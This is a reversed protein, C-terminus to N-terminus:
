NSRGRVSKAGNEALLIVLPVLFGIVLSLWPAFPQETSGLQQLALNILLLVSGSLVAILPITLLKPRDSRKIWLRGAGSIGGWLSGALVVSQWGVSVFSFLWFAALVFAIVGALIAVPWSLIETRQRVISLFSDSFPVYFFGVFAGAIFAGAVYFLALTGSMDSSLRNVLIAALGLGIAGGVVAFIISRRAEQRGVEARKEQEMEALAEAEQSAEIFEEQQPSLGWAEYEEIRSEAQALQSGRFLYDPQRENDEWEQVARTLRGAFSLRERDEDIWSRLRPWRRILAEHAVQVQDGDITILRAAVLEEVVENVAAEDADIRLLEERSAIRRTDKADEHLETLSLFVHKVIPLQDERLRQLTDDATKAIAGEVGGAARYGGLTMVTGRRLEWTELLAHSLLPLQGPEGGADELIQEVLGEVLQWAGRKAPEAIIRVLNEQRMPGILEQHQSVLTRLGEYQATEGYFDARMGILITIEGEEAAAALLNDIFARRETEDRCLTFIEEFQDIVLYLHTANTQGLMRNAALYLIRPNSALEARLEDAATLASDDETLVNALRQLPRSTPTMIRILWNQQRLRPVVGARLLSSKGSGSAGIVVLFPTHQLRAVIDDSLEERGFFNDADAETFYALGKYPQEGPAPPVDEFSDPRVIIETFRNIEVRANRGIAIGEGEIAGVSIQDGASM